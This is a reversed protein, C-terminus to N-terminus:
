LDGGEVSDWFRTLMQAAAAPDQLQWWHGLGELVAVEAGLMAAVEHAKDVDGFPDASAEIVLGPAASPGFRSGWDAFPNPLASRYLGLICAAMTADTWSAMARSDAPSLGFLEYTGAREALPTALQSEFFAEGEVPTQWIRAFDHWVYEPHLINAVDAAWSRLPVRGETVIRYTLGAGWDHGVLDIPGDIKSLESSLWEAYTDKSPVFGDPVPCGFGPLALAISERDIEARLRDWLAVTEPVGHVFVIM